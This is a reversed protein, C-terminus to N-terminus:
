SPRRAIGTARCGSRGAMECTYLHATPNTMVEAGSGKGRGGERAFVLVRDDDLDIFEEAEM